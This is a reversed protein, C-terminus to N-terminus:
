QVWGAHAAVFADVSAASARLPASVRVSGDPGLRLNLNKVRKRTLAYDVGGASRFEKQEVAASGRKKEGCPPIFLINHATEACRASEM